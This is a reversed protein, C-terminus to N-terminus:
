SVPLGAFTGDDVGAGLYADLIQEAHHPALVRIIALLDERTNLPQEVAATLIPAEEAAVAGFIIHPEGHIRNRCIGLALNLTHLPRGKIGARACIAQYTFREQFEVQWYLTDVLGQLEAVKEELARYQAMSVPVEQSASDEPTLLPFIHQTNLDAQNSHDARAPDPHIWCIEEIEASPAAQDLDAVGGATVVLYVHARVTRGAENLAAAEYTGLNMLSYSDLVLGLEETAERRATEEATEGPEPKGGPLMFGTTGRKRVTLVEGLSDRIVLASVVIPASTATSM